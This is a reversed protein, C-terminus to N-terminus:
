AQGRSRVQRNRRFLMVGAVAIIGLGTPEPTPTLLYAQDPQGQYTGRGVIQGADNIGFAYQLTWGSGAPILDILDQM